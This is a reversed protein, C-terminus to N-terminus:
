NGGTLVCEKELDIYPFRKNTIVDGRMEFRGLGLLNLLTDGTVSLDNVAGVIQGSNDTRGIIRGGDLHNGALVLSMAQPWHDRGKALNVVPTRNFETLIAVYINEKKMSIDDMFASLAKAFNPIMMKMNKEIDGHHDYDGDNAVIVRAGKDFMRRALLLQKGIQSNGYKELVEPSESSLNFSTSFDGDILSNAKQFARQQREVSNGAMTHGQSELLELLKMRERYRDLKFDSDGQFPNAFNGTKTDFPSYITQPDTHKLAGWPKDWVRASLTSQHIVVYGVDRSAKHTLLESFEVFPNNYITDAYFSGDTVKSSKTLAIAGGRDHDSDKSRMNNLIVFNNMHRALPQLIETVQMGKVLTDITNFPGRIASNTKPDFTDFFSLGGQMYLILMKHGPDKGDRTIFKLSHPEVDGEGVVAKASNPLLLSLMGAAGPTTLATQLFRRRTPNYVFQNSASNGIYTPPIKM